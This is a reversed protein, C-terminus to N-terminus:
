AEYIDRINSFIYYKIRSNKIARPMILDVPRNFLDELEFKINMYRKIGDKAKDLELLFDIDSSDSFDESLAGGFVALRKVNYKRCIKIIEDNYEEINIM